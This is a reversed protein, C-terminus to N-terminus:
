RFKIAEVLIQAELCPVCTQRSNTTHVLAPLRPIRFTYFLPPITEWKQLGRLLSHLRINGNYENVCQDCVFCLMTMVDIGWARWAACERGGALLRACARM